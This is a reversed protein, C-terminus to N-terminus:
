ASSRISASTPKSSWIPASMEAPYGTKEAVITLMLKELDVGVSAASSTAPASTPAPSGPASPAPAADGLTARLTTPSKGSRACRRLEAPKVSLCAQLARECRAALIEVRKISDIGLDAELEVDVGLM